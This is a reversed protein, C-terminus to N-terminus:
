GFKCQWSRQYTFACVELVVRFWDQKALQKLPVTIHCTFYQKTFESTRHPRNLKFIISNIVV